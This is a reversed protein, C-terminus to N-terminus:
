VQIAGPALSLLSESARDRIGTVTLTPNEM